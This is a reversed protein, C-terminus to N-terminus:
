KLEESKIFPSIDIHSCACRCYVNTKSKFVFHKKGSKDISGSVVLLKKDNLRKIQRYVTTLSVDCEQSLQYANKPSAASRLIQLASKESLIRLLPEPIEAQNQNTPITNHNVVDM